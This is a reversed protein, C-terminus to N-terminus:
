AARRTLHRRAAASLGSALSAAAHLPYRWAPVWGSRRLEAHWARRLPHRPSTWPKHAGYLHYIAPSEFSPRRYADLDPAFGAPKARSGVLLPLPVNWCAPLARWLGALAANLADQDAARLSAAHRRAFDLACEAAGSARWAPLDFLLVGGNFAPADPTALENAAYGLAAPDGLRPLLPERVAGLPSGDLDTQWLEAVDRTVVVDADLYLLRDADGLADALLDPLVIRAYSIPPIHRVQPLGALLHGPLDHFAFRGNGRRAALADLRRRTGAPLGPGVVHLTARTGPRLHRLVGDAAVALPLIAGADAAFAVHVEGRESM